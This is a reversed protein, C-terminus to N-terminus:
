SKFVVPDAIEEPQGIRGMPVFSIYSHPDRGTVKALLPTEVPGPGVANVRIGRKAYGLAPAETMGTVAQKARTSHGVPTTM